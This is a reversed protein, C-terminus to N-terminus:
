AEHKDPSSDDHETLFSRLADMDASSFQLHHLNEGTVLASMRGCLYAFEYRVRELEQLSYERELRTGGEQGICYLSLKGQIQNDVVGLTQMKILIHGHAILNRDTQLSKADAVLKDVSELIAHHDKFRPQCAQRLQKSRRKFSEMEWRDSVDDAAILLKELLRNFSMDFKSWAGIVHGILLLFEEPIGVFSSPLRARSPDFPPMAFSFPQPPTSSQEENKM